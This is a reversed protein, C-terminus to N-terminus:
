SFGPYFGARKAAVVTRLHESMTPGPGLGKEATWQRIASANPDSLSMGATGLVSANIDVSRPQATPTSWRPQPANDIRDQRAASRILPNMDANTTM